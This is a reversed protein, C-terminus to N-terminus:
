ASEDTRSSFDGALRQVAERAPMAQLFNGHTSKYVFVRAPEGVLKRWGAPLVFRRKSDLPRRYEGVFLGADGENVAVGGRM